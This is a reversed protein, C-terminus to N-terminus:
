SRSADKEENAVSSIKVVSVGSSYIAGFVGFSKLFRVSLGRIVSGCAFLKVSGLLCFNINFRRENCAILSSLWSLSLKLGDFLELVM